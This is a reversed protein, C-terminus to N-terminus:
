KGPSEAYGKSKMCLRFAQNERVMRNGARQGSMPGAGRM